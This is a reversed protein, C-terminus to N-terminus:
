CVATMLRKLFDADVWHVCDVANVAIGKDALNLLQEPVWSILHRDVYFFWLDWPPADDGDFFGKSSHQSAGDQVNEDPAYALIRGGALDTSASYPYSNRGLLLSARKEAVEEVIRAPDARASTFPRPTLETSRLQGTLPLISVTDGARILDFARQRIVKYDEQRRFQLHDLLWTQIGRKRELSEARRYLALGQETLQKRRRFEDTEPPEGELTQLSCWAIAEALRKQFLSEDM